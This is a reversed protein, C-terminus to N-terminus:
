PHRLSNESLNFTGHNVNGGLRSGLLGGDALKLDPDDPLLLEVIQAPADASGNPRLPFGHRVIGLADLERGHM